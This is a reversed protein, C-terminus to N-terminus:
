ECLSHVQREQKWTLLTWVLSKNARDDSVHMNSGGTCAKSGLWLSQGPHIKEQGKEEEKNSQTHELSVMESLHKLVVAKKEKEKQSRIEIIGLRTLIWFGCILLKFHTETWLLRYNLGNHHM